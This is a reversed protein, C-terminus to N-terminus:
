SAEETCHFSALTGQCNPIGTKKEFWCLSVTAFLLPPVADFLLLLEKVERAHLSAYLHWCGWIDEAAPNLPHSVLERWRKLAQQFHTTQVANSERRVQLIFEACSLASRSAAPICCPRLTVLIHLVFLSINDWVPSMSIGQYCSNTAAM